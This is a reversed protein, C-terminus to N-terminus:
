KLCFICQETIRIAPYLTLPFTLMIAIAYLFQIGSVTRVKPLNLFINTEVNEGLALYGALGVSVFILFIVLLAGVIVSKFKTPRKMSEGIPLM